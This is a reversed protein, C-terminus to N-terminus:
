PRGDVAGSLAEGDGFQEDSIVAFSGNGELLIARVGALSGRGEQRVATHLDDETLHHRRMTARVVEGEYYLLAPSVDVSRRLRGTRGWLNAVLWQLLVLAGFAAVVEVLAVERATLVRGFASGLTVTIVLDFASMQALTRQGSVRLLVLLTVYGSCAIFLVRLVPVLGNSLFTVDPDIPVARRQPGGGHVV